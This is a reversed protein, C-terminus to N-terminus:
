QQLNFWTGGPGTWSFGEGWTAFTNGTNTVAIEGYDGYIEDFGNAHHYTLHLASENATWMGITQAADGEGGEHQQELAEPQSGAVREVLRDGLAPRLHHQGRKGDPDDGAVIRRKSSPRRHGFTVAVKPSTKPRPKVSSAKGEEPNAGTLIPM